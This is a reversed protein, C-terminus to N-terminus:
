GNERTVGTNGGERRLEILKPSDEWRCNITLFLLSDRGLTAHSHLTNRPIFVLDGPGAHFEATDVRVHMRGRLIFYAQELHPHSRESTTGGPPYKQLMVKLRRAGVSEEDILYQILGEKHGENFPAGVFPIESSHIILSKPKAQKTM